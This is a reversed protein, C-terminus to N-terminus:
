ITEGKRWIQTHEQRLKGLTQDLFAIKTNLWAVVIPGCFKVWDWWSYARITETTLKDAQAMFVTLAAVVSFLSLRLLAPWWFIAQNFKDSM